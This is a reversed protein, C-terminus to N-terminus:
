SFILSDGTTVGCSALTSGYPLIKKDTRSALFLKGRDGVIRCHEKQSIMDSIEDIILDIGVTEDLRFDYTRNLSPVYVDVLIM